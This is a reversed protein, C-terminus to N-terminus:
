APADLGPGVADPEVLHHVHIELGGLLGAIGVVALRDGLRQRLGVLLHGLTAQHEILLGMKGLLRVVKNREGEVLHPVALAEQEERLFVLVAVEALRRPHLLLALRSGSTTRAAPRDRGAAAAPRAARGELMVSMRTTSPARLDKPWSRATSSTEKETRSPSIKPMAPGFPLPLLVSNLTMV